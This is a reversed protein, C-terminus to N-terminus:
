TEKARSYVVRTRCILDHIGTKQKTFIIPLFWIISAIVSVRSASFLTHLLTLNERLVQNIIYFDMSLFAQILKDMGPYFLPVLTYPLSPLSFAILRATARLATIPKGDATQIHIKCLYKGLTGQWPSALCIIYYLALIINGTILSANTGVGLLLGMVGTVVMYIISDVFIAQSRIWFGAYKIPSTTRM